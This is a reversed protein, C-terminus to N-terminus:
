RISSEKPLMSKAFYNGLLGSKFYEKKTGPSNKLRQKIEPIYFRGYLNLHQLCELTSWSDSSIRYNLEGASRLKLQEVYASIGKTDAILQGILQKSKIKM